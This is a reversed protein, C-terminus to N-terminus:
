KVNKFHSFQNALIYSFITFEFCFPIWKSFLIIVFPLLESAVPINQNWKIYFASIHNSSYQGCIIQKMGFINLDNRGKEINAFYIKNCRQFLM